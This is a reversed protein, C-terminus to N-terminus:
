VDYNELLEKFSEDVFNKKISEWTEESMKPPKEVGARAKIYTNVRDKLNIDENADLDHSGNYTGDDEFTIKFEIRDYCNNMQKQWLKLMKDAAEWSGVKVEFNNEPNGEMKELKIEKVGLIRSNKIEEM